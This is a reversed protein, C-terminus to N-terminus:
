LEGPLAPFLGRAIPLHVLLSQTDMLSTQPNRSGIEIKVALPPETASWAPSWATEGTGPNVSYYMVRMHDIDSLVSVCTGKLRKRRVARYPQQSRCLRHYRADLYYGLRGIEQAAGDEPEGVDVLAPFSFHDYSGNFPIPAFRRVNRLDRRLEHFALETMRDQIGSDQLRQWVTVGSSLTAVVTGAVLAILSSAVLVEVLTFGQARRM